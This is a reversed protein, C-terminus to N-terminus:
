VAIKICTEHKLLTRFSYIPSITLLNFFYTMRLLVSFMKIIYTNLIFFNLWKMNIASVLTAILLPKRGYVDSLAGTLPTSLFQLLSFLSGLM